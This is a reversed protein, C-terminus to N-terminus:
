NRGYEDIKKADTDSLGILIDGKNVSNTLDLDIGIIENRENGEPFYRARIISEEVGNENQFIIQYDSAILTIVVKGKLEGSTVYLREKIKEPKIGELAGNYPKYLRLGTIFNKFPKWPSDVNERWVYCQDEPISYYKISSSADDTYGVYNFIRYTDHTANHHILIESGEPIGAGDIVYANVPKVHRLNFNDFQRELRIKTGDSFTHYNKSELDVKIVVKNKPARLKM